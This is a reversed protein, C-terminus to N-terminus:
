DELTATAAPDFLPSCDSTVVSFLWSAALSLSKPSDPLNSFLVSPIVFENSRKPRTCDCQLFLGSLVDRSEIFQRIRHTASQNTPDFRLDVLQADVVCRLLLRPRKGVLLNSSCQAEGTDIQFPLKSLAVVFFITVFDVVKAQQPRFIGKNQELRSSSRDRNRSIYSTTKEGLKM